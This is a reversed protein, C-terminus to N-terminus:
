KSCHPLFCGSLKRNRQWFWRKLYNHTDIITSHTHTPLPFTPFPANWLIRLPFNYKNNKTAFCLYGALWLSFHLPCLQSWFYPPVASSFNGESCDDPVDFIQIAKLVLISEQIIKCCWNLYPLKTQCNNTTVRHATQIGYHARVETLITHRCHCVCVVLTM